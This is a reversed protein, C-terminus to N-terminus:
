VAALVAWTIANPDVIFRIRDRDTRSHYNARGTQPLGPYRKVMLDLVQPVSAKATKTKMRELASITIDPPFPFSGQLLVPGEDLGTTLRHYSFGTEQDQEYISWGTAMLGRREPLRGNHYNVGYDFLQLLSPRLPTLCGLSLVLNSGLARLRTLCRQDHLRHGPLELIPVM